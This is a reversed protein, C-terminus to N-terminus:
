VILISSQTFITLLQFGNIIKGCFTRDEINLIGKGESPPQNGWKANGWWKFIISIVRMMCVCVYVCVCVCVCVSRNWHWFFDKSLIEHIKIKITIWKKNLFSSFFFASRRLHFYFCANECYLTFFSFTQFSSHRNDHDATSITKM